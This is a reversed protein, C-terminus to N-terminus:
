RSSVGTHPLATMFAAGAGPNRDPHMALRKEEAVVRVDAARTVRPDADRACYRSSGASIMTLGSVCSGYRM